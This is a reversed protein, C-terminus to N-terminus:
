RSPPHATAPCCTCPRRGRRRHFPRPRRSRAPQPSHRSGPTGRRGSIPALISLYFETPTTRLDHISPESQIEIRADLRSSDSIRCSAVIYTPPVPWEDRERSTNDRDAATELRAGSSQGWHRPGLRSPREPSVLSKFTHGALPGGSAHFASPPRRVAVRRKRGGAATEVRETCAAVLLEDYREIRRGTLLDPGRRM